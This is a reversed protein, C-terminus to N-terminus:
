RQAIRARFTVLRSSALKSCEAHPTFGGFSAIEVGRSAIRDDLLVGPGAPQPAVDQDYCSVGGATRVRFVRTSRPVVRLSIAEGTRSSLELARSRVLAGRRRGDTALRYVGTSMRLLRGSNTSSVEARVAMRVRENGGNLLFQQIQIVDGPLVSGRSRWGLYRGAHILTFQPPVDVATPVPDVARHYARAVGTLVLTRRAPLVGLPVLERNVLPETQETARRFPVARHRKFVRSSGVVTGFEDKPLTPVWQAGTQLDRLRIPAQPESGSTTLLRVPFHEWQDMLVYNSAAVLQGNATTVVIRIASSWAGIGTRALLKRAAATRQDRQLWAALPQTPTTLRNHITVAYDITDGSDAKIRTGWRRGVTQNRMTLGLGLTGDGSYQLQSERLRPADVGRATNRALLPLAAVVGVALVSGLALLAMARRPTVGRGARHVGPAAAVGEPFSGESGLALLQDAFSDVIEYLRERLVGPKGNGRELRFVNSGLCMHGELQRIREKVPQRAPHFTAFGGSDFKLTDPEGFLWRMALGLDTPPRHELPPRHGREDVPDFADLLLAHLSRRSRDRHKLEALDLLNPLLELDADRWGRQKRVLELEGLLLQRLEQKRQRDPGAVLRQRYGVLRSPGCM